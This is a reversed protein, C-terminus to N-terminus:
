LSCAVLLNANTCNIEDVQKGNLAPFIM